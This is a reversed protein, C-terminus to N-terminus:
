GEYGGAYDDDEDEGLARWGLRKPYGRRAFAPIWLYRVVEVHGKGTRILNKALRNVSSVNCFPQDAKTSKARATKPM